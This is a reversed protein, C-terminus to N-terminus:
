YYKSNNIYAKHQEYRQRGGLIPAQKFNFKFIKQLIYAFPKFPLFIFFLVISLIDLFFRAIPKILIFSLFIAFIFILINMSINYTLFELKDM